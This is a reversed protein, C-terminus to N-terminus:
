GENAIREPVRTVIVQYTEGLFPQLFIMPVDPASVNRRFWGILLLLANTLM